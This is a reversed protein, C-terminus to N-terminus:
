LLKVWAKIIAQLAKRKTTVDAVGDFAVMARDKALWQLLGDPDPVAERGVGSAKAKAGTHLIVRVGGEPNLNTTAFYDALRFSPMNWKIGERIEPAAALIAQRIAEIAAKRPDRLKAMFADVDSDGAAATKAKGTM